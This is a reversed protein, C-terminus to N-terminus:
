SQKLIKLHHFVVSRYETTGSGEAPTFAYADPFSFEIELTGDPDISSGPIACSVEQMDRSVTWQGINRGNVSAIIRQPKSPEVPSAGLALTSYEPISQLRFNLSSKRANPMASAVGLRGWGDKLYKRRISHKGFILIKNFTLTIDDILGVQAFRTGQQTFLRGTRSWNDVDWSDGTIRFEIIAPLYKKDWQDKDKWWDYSYYFRTRTHDASGEDLLDLSGTDARVFDIGLAKFVTEPLDSLAAQRNSVTFEGRRGLPKILLIPDIYAMNGNSFFSPVDPLLTGHDGMIVIMSNDYVGLERLRDLLKSVIKMDARAQMQISSWSKPMKIDHLEEDLRYPPHMGLLHYYKFTGEYPGIHSDELMSNLFVLDKHTNAQGEANEARTLSDQIANFVPKKAHHPMHRFLSSYYLKKVDMLSFLMGSGRKIFNSATEPTAYTYYKKPLYVNYGMQVLKGPISHRLFAERIHEQIPTENRYLKGALITTPMPYTTPHGSVTDRFYIFDDLIKSHRPSNAIARWFVNSDYSDFVLFIVNKKESFAFKNSEDETYLKARPTETSFALVMVAIAQVLLLARAFRPALHSFRRALALSLTIAV